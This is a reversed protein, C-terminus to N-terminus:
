EERKYSDTKGFVSKKGKWPGIKFSEKKGKSIRIFEQYIRQETGDDAKPKNCDRGCGNCDGYEGTWYRLGFLRLSLGKEGAEKIEYNGLAFNYGEKENQHSIYFSGDARLRFIATEYEIAAIYNEGIKIEGEKPGGTIVSDNLLELIEAKAFAGRNAAIVAKFTETIDPAFWRGAGFFRLESISMEKYKNGLWSDVLEMRLEKGEFPRPLDITQGGLQDAVEIQASYGNDGTLNIKRARSNAQCHIVSRQYGNWIRIKEIKQSEAFTFKLNVGQSKRDAAWAFEFRSDFLFAPDYADKPELVSDAQAKGAVLEPVIIRHPNGEKDRLTIGCISFGKNKEFNLTLSRAEVPDRASYFYILGNAEYPARFDEINGDLNVSLINTYNEFNFFMTIQPTLGSKCGDIEMSHVQVAEDFHMHLKVFRAEPDPAWRGKTFIAHPQEDKVANSYIMSLTADMAWAPAAWALVAFFLILRRTM